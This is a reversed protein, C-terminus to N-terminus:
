RPSKGATLKERTPGGGAGGGGGGGTASKSAPVAFYEWTQRKQYRTTLFQPEGPAGRRLPEVVIEGSILVRQLDAPDAVGGASPGSNAGSGGGGGPGDVDLGFFRDFAAEGESSETIQFALPKNLGVFGGASRGGGGRGGSPGTALEYEHVVERLFRSPGPFRQKALRLSLAEEFAGGGPNVLQESGDWEPILTEGTDVRDTTTIRSSIISGGIVLVELDVAIGNEGLDLKPRSAVLAQAGPCQRRVQELLFPKVVTTYIGVLDQSQSKTVAAAYSVVVRRLRYVQGKPHYDGPGELDPSVTLKQRRLRIDDTASLSQAFILEEYTHTFSCVKGLVSGSSAGHEDDGEVKVDFPGEWTGGLAAQITAAYTEVGAAYRAYASLSSGATYTGKVVLVRRGADTQGLTWSENRRGNKSSEAAPIDIEVTLTYRRSRGTNTEAGQNAWRARANFGTNSAPDYTHHVKATGASNFFELKFLKNPTEWATELAACAAKFDEEVDTSSAPVSIVADCAFRFLGAKTDKSFELRRKSTDVIVETGRGIEYTGYTVKVRRTTLAM